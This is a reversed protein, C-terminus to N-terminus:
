IPFATTVKKVKHINFIDNTIDLSPLASAQPKCHFMQKGEKSEGPVLLNTEKEKNSSAPQSAQQCERWERTREMATDYKIPEWLKHGLKKVNIM